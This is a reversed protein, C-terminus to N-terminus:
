AAFSEPDYEPFENDWDPLKAGFEDACDSCVTGDAMEVTIREWLSTDCYTCRAATTTDM